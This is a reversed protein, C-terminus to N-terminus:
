IKVNPYHSYHFRSYRQPTENQSCSRTGRTNLAVKSRTPAYCLVHEPGAHRLYHIKGKKDRWAGVYVGDNGLLGAAKIDSLDAWRASGHLYPNVRFNLRAVNWYCFLSVAWPSWLVSASHRPLSRMITPTIGNTRGCLIPGPYTCMSCTSDLRQIFVM